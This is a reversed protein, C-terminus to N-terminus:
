CSGSTMDLGFLSCNVQTDRLLSRRSMDAGVIGTGSDYASM